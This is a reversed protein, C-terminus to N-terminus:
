FLKATEPDNRHVVFVVAAPACYRRRRRCHQNLYHHHLFLAQPSVRELRALAVKGVFTGAQM